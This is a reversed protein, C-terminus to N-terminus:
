SLAAINQSTKERQKRTIVVLTYLVIILRKSRRM